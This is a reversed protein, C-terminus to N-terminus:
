QLSKKPEKVVFLFLVMGVFVMGSAILCLKRGGVLDYLFGGLTTGLIYALSGGVANFLTQGTAKLHRPVSMDVFTASGVFFAGFTLGHFQQTLIALYPDTILSMFGWRVVTAGAGLLIFKRAGWKKLFWPTLLLVAIESPMALAWSMGILGEGAGLSKMYIAYFSSISAESMICLLICTLFLIFTKQSLIAKIGSLGVPALKSLTVREEKIYLSFFALVAMGLGFCLFVVRLGLRQALIGIPWIAMFGVTGWLRYYSFDTRSKDKLYHFTVSDLVPAITTLFFAMLIDLIVFAVFSHVFPYVIALSGTIISFFFLIKGTARHRDAYAGWLPQALFGITGGIAYLLGIQKGTLGCQQYYLSDYGVLCASAACSVFYLLRILLPFKM